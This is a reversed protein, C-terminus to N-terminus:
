EIGVTKLQDVIKKITAAQKNTVIRGTLCSKRACDLFEIEQYNLVRQETAKTILNQWYQEGLKFIEVAYDINTNNRQEKKARTMDIQRDENSILCKKIEPSLTHPM